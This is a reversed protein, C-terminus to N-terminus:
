LGRRRNLWNAADKATRFTDPMRPSERQGERSVGPKMVQTPKNARKNRAAAKAEDYKYAKYIISQSHVSRM